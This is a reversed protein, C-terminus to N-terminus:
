ILRMSITKPPGTAVNTAEQLATFYSDSLVDLEQKRDGYKIVINFNNTKNQKPKKKFIQPTELIPEPEGSGRTYKDVRKGTKRTYQRVTHEIPTKRKKTFVM